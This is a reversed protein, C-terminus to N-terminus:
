GMLLGKAGKYAGLVNYGPGSHLNKNIVKHTFNQQYSPLTGQIQKFEPEQNGCVPAM